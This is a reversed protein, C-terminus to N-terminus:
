KASTYENEIEEAQEMLEQLEKIQREYDQKETKIEKLLREREEEKLNNNQKVADEYHLLALMILDIDELHRAITLAKEAEGRGIFIWYEYYRPDTQLSITKLVNDKQVEALTENVIHSITLEYQVVKPMDEVEYNSLM